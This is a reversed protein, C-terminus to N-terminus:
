GSGEGAARLPARHAARGLCVTETGGCLEPHLVEDRVALLGPKRGRRSILLRAECGRRTARCGHAHTRPSCAPRTKTATKDKALRARRGTQAASSTPGRM